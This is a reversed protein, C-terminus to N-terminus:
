RDHGLSFLNGPRSSPLLFFYGHLWSTGVKKGEEEEEEEIRTLSLTVKRTHVHVCAYMIEYYTCLAYISTCAHASKVSFM